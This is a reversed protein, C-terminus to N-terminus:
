NAVKVMSHRLVKDKHMYGKQLVDAVQNQGFNEDQVHAVANHFNPDFQQGPEIAITEVGLAALIGDFQRVIM